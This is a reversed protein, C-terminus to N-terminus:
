GDAPPQGEDPKAPEAQAPAAKAKAERIAAVASTIAEKYEGFALGSYFRGPYGLKMNGSENLTVFEVAQAQSFHNTYCKLTKLAPTPSVQISVPPTGYPTYGLEAAREPTYLEWGHGEQKFNCSGFVAPTGAKPDPVLLYFKYGKDTPEVECGARIHALAISPRIGGCFDCTGDGTLSNKRDSDPGFKMPGGTGHACRDKFCDAEADQPISAPSPNAADNM